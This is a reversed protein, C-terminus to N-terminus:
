RAGVLRQARRVAAKALGVARERARTALRPELIPALEPLVEKTSEARLADLKETMSRFARLQGSDDQARM